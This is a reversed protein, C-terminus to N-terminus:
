HAMDICSRQEPTNPTTFVEEPPGVEHIRGQLMLLLQSCVDRTFAMEHAVMVLTMRERAVHCM